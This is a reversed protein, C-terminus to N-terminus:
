PTPSFFFNTIACACRRHYAVHSAVWELGAVVDSASGGGDCDLVRVPHITAGPAVGVTAGAITASVHTGHGDCDEFPSSSSSSSTKQGGDDTFDVGAGIARGGSFEAHTARVGSDLVYVHAGAGADADRVYAGDLPLARQDLRDLNWLKTRTTTTTTTTTAAAEVRADPEV